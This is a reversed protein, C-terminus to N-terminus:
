TFAIAGSTVISGDPLVVNLYFTKVRTEGINIDITGNAESTLSFSLPVMSSPTADVFTATTLDSGDTLDDTNATWDGANNAIAIYGLAVNGADPAPLAALALPASNYAQTAGPVKTSITGAANIQVLIIGFKSATVVHGATFVLATTAAKTKLQGAVTYVAITTTKFKEAVADIVLTGIQLLSNLGVPSGPILVGNTGIALSTNPPSAALVDGHSDDSLFARLQQRVAVNRNKHDGLQLAVNIVNSGETGITFAVSQIGGLYPNRAKSRPGRSLPAAPPM